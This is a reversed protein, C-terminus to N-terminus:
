SAQETTPLKRTPMNAGHTSLVDVRKWCRRNPSTSTQPAARRDPQARLNICKLLVYVMLMNGATIRLWKNNKFLYWEYFVVSLCVDGWRCFCYTSKKSALYCTTKFHQCSSLSFGSFITFREASAFVHLKGFCLFMVKIFSKSGWLVQASRQCHCM